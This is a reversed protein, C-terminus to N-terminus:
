EYFKSLYIYHNLNLEETQALSIQMRLLAHNGHLVTVSYANRTKNAHHLKTVATIDQLGVLDAGDQQANLLVLHNMM